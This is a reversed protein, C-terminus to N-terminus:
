EIGKRQENAVQEDAQRENGGHQTVRFSNIVRGRHVWDRKLTLQKAMITRDAQVDALRQPRRRWIAASARKASSFSRRYPVRPSRTGGLTSMFFSRGAISPESLKLHFSHLPWGGLNLRDVKRGILAM